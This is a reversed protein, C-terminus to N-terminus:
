LYHACLDSEYIRRMATWSAIDRLRKFTGVSDLEATEISSLEMVSTCGCNFVMDRMTSKRRM